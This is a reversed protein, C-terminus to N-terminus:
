PERVSASTNMSRAADMAATWTMRWPGNLLHLKMGHSHHSVPQWEVYPAMAILTAGGFSPIFSVFSLAAGTGCASTGGQASRRKAAARM